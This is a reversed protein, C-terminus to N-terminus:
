SDKGTQRKWDWEATLIRWHLLEGWNGSLDRLTESKRLTVTDLAERDEISLPFMRGFFRHTKRAVRAHSHASVERFAACTEKRFIAFGKAYWDALTENRLHIHFRDMLVIRREIPPLATLNDNAARFTDIATEYIPKLGNLHFRATWAAIVRAWSHQKWNKLILEVHPEATRHKHLLLGGIAIERVEADVSPDSILENLFRPKAPHGLENLNLLVNGLAPYDRHMRSPDQFLTTAAKRDLAILTRFPPRFTPCYKWDHRDILRVCYDWVYSRFRPEARGSEIAEHAGSLASKQISEKEHNFLKEVAPLLDDSGFATLDMGIEHLIKIDDSELWRFLHSKLSLHVGRDLFWLANRAPCNNCPDDVRYPMFPDEREFVEILYLSVLDRAPLVKWYEASQHLGEALYAETLARLKAPALTRARKVYWPSCGARDAAQLIENSFFSRFLSSKTPYFM